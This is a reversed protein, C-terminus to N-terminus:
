WIRHRSGTPGSRQRNVRATLDALEEAAAAAAGTRVIPKMLQALDDRARQLLNPSALWELATTAMNTTDRYWPMFEPVIKRGALINPLSLFPTKILWGRLLPYGWRAGRANYMVIMPTHHYAAELTATGSAILALDAARLADSPRGYTYRISLGRADRDALTEILPRVVPNAVAIVARTRHHRSAVARAIALQGPFVEKVVQVRSGPLLALVPWREGRLAFVKEPDATEDALRDFLPHGVYRADIGHRRFYEEEFPLIVALRDVRQRIARLRWERSAWTQPAIFYFVPIGRARCRRALPLHFTGSDVLVAADPPRAALLRDCRSFVTLAAPIRGVVGTLMAAGSALDAVARCGAATMAPGALGSFEVDPHLNRYARILASAHEDASQEAASIFLRLPPIGSSM